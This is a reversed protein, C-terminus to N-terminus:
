KNQLVVEVDGSSGNDRIKLGKKTLSFVFGPHGVCLASVAIVILAGELAIFLSENHILHGQYGESLEGVRYACRALILLVAAGLCVLFTKLRVSIFATSKSRSYRNLYDVLLGCFVVMTIVQFSLGALALNVGTTSQGSSSTSLAGGVGQLVLAFVDCLIFIIYYLSPRILSLRPDLSEITKTITVYIAASYFVPASGVCIIQIMFGPFSFPNYYLMIRGGYGLIETLCGVAVCSMFWWSKWRVGLGTHIFMLISYLCVFAINAGLSPRYQFVSMEIPCTELTCTARPGFPVLPLMEM